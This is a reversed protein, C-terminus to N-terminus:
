TADELQEPTLLERYALVHDDSLIFSGGWPGQGNHRNVDGVLAYVPRGDRWLRVQVGPRLIEKRVAYPLGGWRRDVCVWPHPDHDPCFWNGGFRYVGPKSCLSTGRCAHYHVPPQLSM